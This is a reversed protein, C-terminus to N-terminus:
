IMFAATGIEPTAMSSLLAAGGITGRAGIGAGILSGIGASRAQDQQLGYEYTQFRNRTLSM